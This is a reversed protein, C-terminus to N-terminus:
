APEPMPPSRPPELLRTCPKVGTAGRAALYRAPARVDLQPEVGAAKCAQVYKQRYKELKPRRRWAFELHRMAADVRGRELLCLGLAYHLQFSDQDLRLRTRLMAEREPRPLRLARQLCYRVSLELRPLVLEQLQELTPAERMIKLVVRSLVGAEKLVQGVTHGGGHIEFQTVQKAKRAILLAHRADRQGPDYILYHHSNQAVQDHDPRFQICAAEEAWRVEFPVAARQISYQAGLAIVKRAGVADAYTTAAFGGMSGGYATADEGTLAAVAALCDDLDPYQYWDNGRPVIHVANLRYKAAFSAGFPVRRQSPNIQDFTVLEVGAHELRSADGVTLVARLNASKHVEM